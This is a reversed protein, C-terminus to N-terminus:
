YKLKVLQVQIADLTHALNVESIELEVVQLRHSQTSRVQSRKFIEGCEGAKDLHSQRFSFQFIKMKDDFIELQIETM